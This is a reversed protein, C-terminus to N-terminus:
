RAGFRRDYDDIKLLEPELIKCHMSHSLLETQTRISNPRLAAEQM